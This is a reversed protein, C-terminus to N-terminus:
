TEYRIEFTRVQESAASGTNGTVDVANVREVRSAPPGVRLQREFRDVASEDGEALAEVHGAPANRVWGGVQERLAAQYVFYRFGVGQVRGSILYRRAVRM